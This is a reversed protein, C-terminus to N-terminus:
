TYSSTYSRQSLEFSYNICFLKETIERHQLSPALQLLITYKLVAIMQQRHNRYIISIDCAYPVVQIPIECKTVSMRYLHYSAM